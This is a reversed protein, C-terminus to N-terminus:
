YLSIMVNRRFASTKKTKQNKMLLSQMQGVRKKKNADHVYGAGEREGGCVCECECVCVCVCVCVCESVCVCVCVSVCVFVCVVCVVCVCVCCVCVVTGAVKKRSRPVYHLHNLLMKFIIYNELLFFDIALSTIM